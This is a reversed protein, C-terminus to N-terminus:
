SWFKSHTQENVTKLQKRPMIALIGDQERFMTGEDDIVVNPIGRAILTARKIRAGALDAHTTYGKGHSKEASSLVAYRQGKLFIVERHSGERYVSDFKRSSEQANEKKALKLIKM